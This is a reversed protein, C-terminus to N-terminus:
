HANIIQRWMEFSLWWDVEKALNKKGAYFLNVMEVIKPYDYFPYSKVQASSVTDKVFESITHLLEYPAPDFFAWGGKRKITTWLLSPVTPYSFPYTTGNKVLPYSTLSPVHEKIIQRFLRGNKRVTIPIEFLRRLFSPQAFPMYNTVEGDMRSQEYAGWNLFRTRIALLDLFNEEGIHDISPLQRWLMEIQNEVTRYMSHTLENQFIQARHVRLYPVILRPDGNHLPKRGLRLLRNFYQRRAIEGFGGDIVIRHLEHLRAYYRLKLASSAPEIACTQGIYERLLRLCSDANPVPEHLLLHFIQNHQGIQKAIRVDPDEPHGFTHLSFSERQQSVLLSLLVRSDLGGSLSLSLSFSGVIMPNTLAILMSTLSDGQSKDSVFSPEWAKQKIRFSTPTCVATGGPGLKSVGKILSDPSLQNFTLWHSSFSEYDIECSNLLRTIWDLRTSIVIGIRTEALYLSRLGLQDAFCTIQGPQWKVIVFHGDLNDLLPQPATLITQWDTPALFKCSNEQRIIGLGVLMWGSHVPKDVSSHLGSLCTTSIGGAALYIQDTQITHLPKPHLAVISQIQEPSLRESIIGFIWSM